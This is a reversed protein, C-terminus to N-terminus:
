VKERLRHPRREISGSFTKLDTELQSALGWLINMNDYVEWGKYLLDVNIASMFKTLNKLVRVQDLIPEMEFLIRRSSIPTSEM